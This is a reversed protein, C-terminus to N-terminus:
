CAWLGPCLRQFGGTPLWWIHEMVRTFIFLNLPILHQDGDLQPGWAGRADSIGVPRGDVVSASVRKYLKCWCPFREKRGSKKWEPHKTSVGTLQMWECFHLGTVDRPPGPGVNSTKGFLIPELWRKQSSICHKIWYTGEYYFHIGAGNARRRTAM